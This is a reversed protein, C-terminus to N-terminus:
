KISYVEKEFQSIAAECDYYAADARSRITADLTALRTVRRGM